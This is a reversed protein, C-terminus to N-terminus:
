VPHVADSGAELSGDTGLAAVDTDAYDFVAAYSGEDVLRIRNQRRAKSSGGGASFL